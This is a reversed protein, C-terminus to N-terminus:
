PDLDHRSDIEALRQALEDMGRASILNRQAPHGRPPMAWYDGTVSGRWIWWHPYQRRLEGLGIDENDGRRGTVAQAAPCCNPGNRGM